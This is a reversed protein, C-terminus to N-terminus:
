PGPYTEYLIKELVSRISVFVLGIGFRFQPSPSPNSEGWVEMCKELPSRFRFESQSNRPAQGPGPEPRPGPGPRPQGSNLLSPVPLFFQLILLKCTRPVHKYCRIRDGTHAEFPYPKTRLTQKNHKQVKRASPLCEM